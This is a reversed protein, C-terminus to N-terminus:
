AEAERYIVFTNHKRTMQGDNDM